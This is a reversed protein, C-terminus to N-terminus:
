WLSVQFICEELYEQMGYAEEAGGCHRTAIQRSAASESM